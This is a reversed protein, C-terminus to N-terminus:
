FYFQLQLFYIGNKNLTVFSEIKKMIKTKLRSPSIAVSIHIEAPSNKHTKKTNQTNRQFLSSYFATGLETLYLGIFIYELFVNKLCLYSGFVYFCFVHLLHPQSRCTSHYSIHIWCSLRTLEELM